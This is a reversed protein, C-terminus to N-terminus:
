LSAGGQAMQPNGGGRGGYEGLVDNIIQNAPYEQCISQSSRVIVQVKDGNIVRLILLLNETENIIDDSLNRIENPNAEKITYDIKAIGAEETLSSIIANKLSAGQQNAKAQLAKKNSESKQELKEIAMNFVEYDTGTALHLRPLKTVLESVNKLKVVEGANLKVSLDKIQTEIETILQKEFKKVNTSTLAEIRRIGSGIGTESQIYFREIDSTNKVHTGGCLEVAPGMQVVRVVDGYKEGFLAVAGLEKAEAIGMEQIVVDHNAEINSNVANQIAILQEETLPELTSYDFRTKSADQLSGQQTVTNGLENRLALHLLHTVSHNKTIDNRYEVDVQAMLKDGLKIPTTIEVTHLHQGNQLKAVAIVRNNGIYGRDSVQGGSEAYFPTKDLIINVVKASTKEVINEDEIIVEVKSLIAHRDYGVFSSAVEINQLVESQMHMGAANKTHSRAREKQAEMHKAFGDVDVSAAKDEAIEMTIEIPFGFTDYLKFANEGTILGDKAIMSECMHMGEEITDLFKLEEKNIVKKIMEANANLEPYFERNVDIVIDVLYELFPEKIELELYAAKVARRLIRRIVYGRGENAPLIGDSIAFVLARIHDAIIRFPKKNDKYKVSTLSEIKSIIVMFNDTEFNTPVDQLICAMRELGMGTDINKQPLEDYDAKDREGPMCNYQSFVINWIEIIRDNELDKELLEIVNRKDYKKGRDYFIETNPGGPGQGIEWFNEELKVIQKPKVGLSVWKKYAVEDNPHVTFYLRDLPLNFWKKSTLLEFGLEIAEEKFYDGISFNGLMEFLTHHRSTVGVNEIDNTRLSKQSNVIRNSKPKQSGDFYKKLTAVGSNIFLLSDDDVPILSQSPEMYHGKEIFFDLYMKRIENTKM